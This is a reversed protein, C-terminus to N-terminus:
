NGESLLGLRGLFVRGFVVELGESGFEDVKLGM